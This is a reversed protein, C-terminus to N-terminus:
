NLLNEARLKAEQERNVLERLAVPDSSIARADEVIHELLSAVERASSAIAPMSAEVNLARILLKQRFTEAEYALDARTMVSADTEVIMLCYALLKTLM